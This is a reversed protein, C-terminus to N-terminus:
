KEIIYDEALLGGFTHKSVIQQLVGQEIIWDQIDLYTTLESPVNDTFQAIMVNLMDRPIQEIYKVIEHEIDTTTEGVQTRYHQIYTVEAQFGKTLPKKINIKIEAQLNEVETVPHNKVPTQKSVKAFRGVQDLWQQASVPQKTKVKM